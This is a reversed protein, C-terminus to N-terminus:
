YRSSMSVISVYSFPEFTTILQKILYGQQSFRVLFRTGRVHHRSLGSHYTFTGGAKTNMLEASQVCLVNIPNTSNEFYLAIIEQFVLILTHWYVCLVSCVIGSSYHIQRLAIANKTCLLEVVSRWPQTTPFGAEHEPAGPKPGVWCILQGWKGRKWRYVRFYTFVAEKWVSEWVNYLLLVTM